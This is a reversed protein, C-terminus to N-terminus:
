RLNMAYEITVYLSIFYDAEQEIFQDSKSRSCLCRFATEYYEAVAFWKLSNMLIAEVKWRNLSIVM